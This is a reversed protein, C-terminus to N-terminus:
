EEEDERAEKVIREYQVACNAQMYLKCAIRVSQQLRLYKKRAKTEHLTSRGAM